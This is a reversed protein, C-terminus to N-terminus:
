IGLHGGTGDPGGSGGSNGSGSGEEDKPKAEPKAKPKKPKPEVREYSVGDLRFYRQNPRLRVAPKLIHVNAKFEEGVPVVKSVFTPTLAGLDGFEVIDGNAVIDKAIETAYNLVAAVEQPTFTTAKAVRETFSRFDVRERGTPM